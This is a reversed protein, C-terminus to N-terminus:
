RKTSFLICKLLGGGFPITAIELPRAFVGAQMANQGMGVGDTSDTKIYLTQIYTASVCRVDWRGAYAITVNQDAGTTALFVVVGLIDKDGLQQAKKVRDPSVLDTEVINGIALAQSSKTQYTEGAVQWTEGNYFCLKSDAKDSPSILFQQGTSPSSIALMEAQTGTTISGGGGSIANGNVILSGGGNELVVNAISPNNSTLTVGTTSIQGNGNVASELSTTRTEFNSIRDGLIKGPKDASIYSGSIDTLHSELSALETELRGVRTNTPNDNELSIYTLGSLTGQWAMPSAPAVVTTSTDSISMCIRKNELNGFPFGYAYVLKLTRLVSTGSILVFEISSSTNNIGIQIKDPLGLDNSTTFNESLTSGNYRVTCVTNTFTSTIGFNFTMISNTMWDNNNVSSDIGYKDVVGILYRDIVANTIDFQAYSTSIPKDYIIFNNFYFTNISAINANNITLNNTVLNNPYVTLGDIVNLTSPPVTGFVAESLSGHGSIVTDVCTIIGDNEIKCNENNSSDEISVKGSTPLVIKTGGSAVTSKINIFNSSGAGEKEEVSYNEPGGFDISFSM